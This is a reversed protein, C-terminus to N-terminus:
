IKAIWKGRRGKSDGQVLVDKVAATSVYATIASQLVYVWFSKLSKVLAYAQKELIDYKLEVDQLVQSFFM